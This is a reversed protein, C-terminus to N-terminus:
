RKLPDLGDNADEVDSFSITTITRGDLDIDEIVEGINPSHDKKFNEWRNVVNRITERAISDDFSDLFEELLSEM